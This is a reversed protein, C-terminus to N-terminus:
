ELTIRAVNNKTHATLDVDQGSFSLKTAKANGIVLNFPPKGNITETDGGRSMKEYIVKGSKDTVNVWAQESFTMSVIKDGPNAAPIQPQQAVLAQQLILEAKKPESEKLKLNDVKKSEDPLKSEVPQASSVLSKVDETPVNAVQADSAQVNASDISGAVPESGDPQREAAPLAAEPLPMAVASNSEELVEPSKEVSASTKKPMYDMYFFWAILFLLVLISGLIYKLWPRGEKTLQVPQMSSKVTIGKDSSDAVIASYSALLPEADIDLLRAYNRIFGRIIVAEPLLDFANNELADIQKVSFRLSNSVDQQTLEKANRAILLLEGLSPKNSLDKDSKENNMEVDVEQSEAM